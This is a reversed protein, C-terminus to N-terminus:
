VSLEHKSLDKFESLIIKNSITINLYNINTWENESDYYFVDSNLLEEPLSKLKNILEIATM